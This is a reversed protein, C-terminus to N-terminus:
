SIAEIAEPVQAKSTGITSQRPSAQLRAPYRTDLVRIWRDSRLSGESLLMM